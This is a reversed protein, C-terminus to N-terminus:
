PPTSGNNIFYTLLAYRGTTGTKGYISHLYMKMTGETVNFERALAKNTRPHTIFSRLIERERLTLLSLNM